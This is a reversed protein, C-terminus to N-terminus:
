QNEQSEECKSRDRWRLDIDRFKAENKTQPNEPTNKQKARQKQSELQQKIRNSTTIEKRNTRYRWNHQDKQKADDGEYINHLNKFRKFTQKQHARNWLYLERNNM